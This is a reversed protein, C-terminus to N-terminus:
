ESLGNSQSEGPHSHEPVAVLARDIKTEAVISPEGDTSEDGKLLVGNRGAMACAQQIMAVIAPEKDSRYAFHVLGCETIWRAIRAVILPEPGKSSVICAFNLRFPYLRMVLITVNDADKSDRIFGYDGVLLPITRKSEHSALHQINPRKCSVCIECDPDYPLHAISHKARQQPTMVKPSVMPKAEIAGPGHEDLTVLEDGVISDEVAVSKPDLEEEADELGVVPIDGTTGLSM